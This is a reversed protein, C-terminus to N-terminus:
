IKKRKKYLIIHNLWNVHNLMNKMIENRYLYDWNLKYKDLYLHIIFSM